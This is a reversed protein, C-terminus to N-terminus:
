NEQDCLLSVQRNGETFSVLSIFSKTDSTVFPLSSLEECCLQDGMVDGFCGRVCVFNGTQKGVKTYDRQPASVGQQNGIRKSEDGSM